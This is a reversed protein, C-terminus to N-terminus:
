ETKRSLIPAFEVDDVVVKRPRPTGSVDYRVKPEEVVLDPHEPDIEIQEDPPEPPVIDDDEGPEYILVPEGDFEPDAFNDTANRFDMITFHTKGFDEDIRTGRGIIQKFEIMSNIARDLVILKCTKADVGTSM